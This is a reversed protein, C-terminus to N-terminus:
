SPELVKKYLEFYRGAMSRFSFESEVRERSANAMNSCLRRDRYVALCKEAFRKPDRGEVLFGDVGDRVIESIGGGTPAIVPLGHSMAELVSMPSGEHLSTNIYLDLEEYFDSIDEMFGRLQFVEQLGNKKIQELLKGREPGDGALEFRVDGAQRNVDAAIDVLLPYDKVPFLRGASGITFPHNGNEKGQPVHDPIVTGNPIVALRRRPFGHRGCLAIRMGESVAVINDFHRSLIYRNAISLLKWKWRSQPEDLGHQTCVLAIRPRERRSSVFGLINEKMRHTHLIDPHREQLIGRVRRAAGIIDLRTEDVVDVPMGLKRIERALIGENMLIASPEVGEIERLGTLLRLCMMEAGAWLDGSIVHCVRVPMRVRENM